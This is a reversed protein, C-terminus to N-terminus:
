RRRSFVVPYRIKVMRVSDDFFEADAFLIKQVVSPVFSIETFCLQSPLKNMFKM